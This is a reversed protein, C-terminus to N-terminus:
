QVRVSSVTRGTNDLVHVGCAMCPDFSHITRLIEIPQDLLELHHTIRGGGSPMFKSKCLLRPKGVAVRPLM